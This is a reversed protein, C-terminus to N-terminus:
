VSVISAAGFASSASHPFASQARSQAGSLTGMLAGFPCPSYHSYILFLIFPFVKTTASGSEGFRERERQQGSTPEEDELSELYEIAKWPSELKGLIM